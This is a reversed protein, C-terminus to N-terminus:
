ALAAALAALADDSAPPGWSASVLRLAALVEASNSRGPRRATLDELAELLIREAQLECAKVQARLGERADDGLGPLPFKLERRATRIPQLAALDVARATRVAADVLHLDTPRAWAAWLLLPVNQGFADQLQLCRAAVDPRAYAACAWDWLSM